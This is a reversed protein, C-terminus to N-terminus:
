FLVYPMPHRLLGPGPAHLSTRTCRHRFGHANGWAFFQKEVLFFNFHVLLIDRCRMSVCLIFECPFHVAGVEHCIIDGKIKSTLKM